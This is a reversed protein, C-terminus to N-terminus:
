ALGFVVGAHSKVASAAEGLLAKVASGLHGSFLNKAASIVRGGASTVASCGKGILGNFLSAVACLPKLPDFAAAPAARAGCLGMVVLAVAALRAGRACLSMQGDHGPARLLEG